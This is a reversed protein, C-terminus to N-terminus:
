KDDIDDDRDLLLMRKKSVNSIKIKSQVPQKGIRKDVIKELGFTSADSRKLKKQPSTLSDLDLIGQEERYEKAAEAEAAADYLAEDLGDDSWEPEANEDPTAEEYSHNDDDDQTLDIVTEGAVPLPNGFISEGCILADVINDFDDEVEADVPPVYKVTMHRVTGNAGSIRRVFAAWMVADIKEESYWERPPKNSTIIILKAVFPVFSGKTNVLYPYKDCLRLLTDFPLWGYFEDIIVVPEGNYNDWWDIGGDAPKRLWYAGGNADGIQSATHSKGTGSPGYMVLVKTTTKRQNSKLSSRYANFSKHALSMISFHSQWLEQDTAGQDILEKVELLTAKRKEGSQKGGAVIKEHEVYKGLMWPGRLRTDRKTVYKVCEAHSGGDPGDFERCPKLSMKSNLNEKVWKLSFGNKNRPNVKTIFYIQLHPTGTTPAEEVQWAVFDVDGDAHWQAPLNDAVPNQLTAMWRRSIMAM